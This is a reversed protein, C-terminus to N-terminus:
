ASAPPAEGIATRQLEATTCEPTSTPVVKKLMFKLLDRNKVTYCSCISMISWMVAVYMIIYLIHDCAIIDIGIYM